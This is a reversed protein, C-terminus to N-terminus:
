DNKCLKLMIKQQDYEIHLRNRHFHIQDTRIFSNGKVKWSKRPLRNGAVTFVQKELRSIKESNFPLGIPMVGTAVEEAHFNRSCSQEGKSQRSCCCMLWITVLNHPKYFDSSLWHKSNMYPSLACAAQPPPVYRPQTPLPFEGWKVLKEDRENECRWGRSEKMENHINTQMHTSSQTECLFSFFWM